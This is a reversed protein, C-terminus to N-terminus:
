VRFDAVVAIVHQHRCEVGPLRSKEVLDDELAAAGRVLPALALGTFLGHRRRLGVIRKRMAAIFKSLRSGTGVSSFRTRASSAASKGAPLRTRILRAGPRSSTIPPM